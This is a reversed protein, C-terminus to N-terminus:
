TYPLDVDIFDWNDEEDKVKKSVEPEDQKLIPRLRKRNRRSAERAKRKRKEQTTEFYRRRKCEQIIGARLVDRRFRGILKEEPEHEGVIVQLNYASKFFLTNSNALGPCLVSFLDSPLIPTIPPKHKLTQSLTTPPLSIQSLTITQPLPLSQSLNLSSLSKLLSPFPSFSATAM